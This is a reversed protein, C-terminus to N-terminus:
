NRHSLQQKDICTFEKEEKGYQTWIVAEELVSMEDEHASTSGGGGTSRSIGM